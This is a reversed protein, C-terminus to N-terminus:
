YYHIVKFLWSASAKQCVLDQLLQTMADSTTPISGQIHSVVTHVAVYSKDYSLGTSYFIGDEIVLSM